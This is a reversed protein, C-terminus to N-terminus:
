LASLLQAPFVIVTNKVTIAAHDHGHALKEQHRMKNEHHTDLHCLATLDQLSPSIYTM